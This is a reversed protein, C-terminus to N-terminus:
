IEDALRLNVNNYMRKISEPNMFFSGLLTNTTKFQCQMVYHTPYQYLAKSISKTINALRGKYEVNAIHRLKMPDAPTPINVFLNNKGGCNTLLWAMMRIDGAQVGEEVIFEVLDIFVRAFIKDKIIILSSVAQSPAGFRFLKSPTKEVPYPDKFQSFDYGNAGVGFPVMAASGLPVRGGAPIVYQTKDVGLVPGRKRRKRKRPERKIPKPRTGNIDFSTTHTGLTPGGKGKPKGKGGGSPQGGGPITTTHTATTINIPLEKTGPRPTGSRVSGMPSGVATHVSHVSPTASFKHSRPTRGGDSKEEGGSDSKEDGGL